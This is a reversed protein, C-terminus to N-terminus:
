RRRGTPGTVAVGTTVIVHLLPFVAGSQVPTRHKQGFWGHLILAVFQPDDPKAPHVTASM